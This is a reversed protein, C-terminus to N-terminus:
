VHVDVLTVLVDAAVVALLDHVRQEWEKVKASYARIEAEDLQHGFAEVGTRQYLSIAMGLAEQEPTLDPGHLTNDEDLLCTPTISADVDLDGARMQDYGPGRRPMLRRFQTEGDLVRASLVAEVDPMTDGHVAPSTAGPRAALHGSYRGGIGAWDTTGMPTALNTAREVPNEGIVIIASHM